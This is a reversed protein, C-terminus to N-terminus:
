YIYEDVLLGKNDFLLLRDHLSDFLFDENMWIRWQNSLFDGDDRYKRFCAAHSITNLFARCANGEDTGSLSNYFGVDPMACRGLSMLYSQCQGYLGVYESREIAPCDNPLDPNFDYFNNLYGACKNFRLNKNIPSKGSYIILYSSGSLIINEEKNIGEPNYVNIAQPITFGYRNGKIKWGSINISEDKLSYSSLQITKSYNGYFYSYLSASSIQVKEFYPSLKDYNFGTPIRYDPIKKVSEQVYSTQISPEIKSAKYAPPKPSYRQMPNFSFFGIKEKLFPGQSVAYIIVGSVIIFIIAIKLFQM